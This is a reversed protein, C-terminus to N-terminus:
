RDAQEDVLGAGPTFDGSEDRRGAGLLARVGDMASGTSSTSRGCSWAAASPAAAEPDAPDLM